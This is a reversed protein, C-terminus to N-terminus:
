LWYFDNLKRIIKKDEPLIQLTFKDRKKPDRGM